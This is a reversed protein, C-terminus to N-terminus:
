IGKVIKLLKKKKQTKGKQFKIQYKSLVNLTYYIKVTFKNKKYRNKISESEM